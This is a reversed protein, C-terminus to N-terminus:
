FRGGGRRGRTGGGGFSGPSMRGRSSGGGGGFMGGLGGSSGGRSGGGGGGLLSNIVIGGLVAGLMDGGGSASGGGFGGGSFAGVDSQARQIAQGALANARQAHQLAQAPDAQELQRAHVLEAGAEALRTRAEAGVAGRRSTIFDEAASVQAQAQTLTSALQQAARQAREQADRVGALTADIESNAKDLSQLALLPRKATGSLQAKAADLQQRTSAIVAGLRGDADPLGSATAIDHELEAVLAVAEQESRALDAGLTGIAQQLLDAQAVADEAARISVAAAATDGSGLEQAAAALRADAFQLRQDAQAPNDAVTALAEPAYMGRLATLAAVSADHQQGVAGRLAAVRALADPANQELSRLEDFEAAKADLEDNAHACLEIIQTTWARVQEDTDPVDDDLQQQLSFARDLDQGAQALAAEFARASEDGFQARAFGLEQESTKIADDTAVLASAAQRVLEETPVPPPGATGGTTVGTATKRRSRVVIWIVLAALALLVVVLLIPVIASGAGGGAVVDNLAASAATAAGAWDGAALAPYIDEQEIRTLADADVPGDPDGYLYYARGETAVALLYQHPGLNNAAATAYAWEEADTPDTFDPVYVAWLDLGSAAHMASLQADLDSEEADTLVGSEDLVRSAGLGVPQTAYAASGVGVVITAIAVLALAIRRLM